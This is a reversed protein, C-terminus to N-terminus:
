CGVLARLTDTHARGGPLSYATMVRILSESPTLTTISWSVTVQNFTQPSPSDVFDASGCWPTTSAAITRMEELKAQARATAVTSLRSNTLNRTVALSGGALMLLGIALIVIAVLTEVITLGREDLKM